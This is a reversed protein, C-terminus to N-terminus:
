FEGMEKINHFAPLVDVGLYDDAMATKLKIRLAHKTSYEIEAPLYSKRVEQEVKKLVDPLERIFDSMDDFDNIFVVVDLDTKNKM